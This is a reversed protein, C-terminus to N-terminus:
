NPRVLLGRASDKRFDNREKKKILNLLDAKGQALAFYKFEYLHKTVMSVAIREKLTLTKTNRSMQFVPCKICYTGFGKRRCIMPNMIKITYKAAAVM